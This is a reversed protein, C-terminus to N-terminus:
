SLLQLAPEYLLLHVHEAELQMAADVVRREDLAEQAVVVEVVHRYADERREKTTTTTTM